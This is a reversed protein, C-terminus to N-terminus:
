LGCSEILKVRISTDNPHEQLQQTPSCFQRSLKEKRSKLFVDQREAIIQLRSPETVSQFAYTYRLITQGSLFCSTPYCCVEV